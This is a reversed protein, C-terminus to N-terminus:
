KYEWVIVIGVQGGVSVGGSTAVSCTGGSGYGTGIKAGTASPAFNPGSFGLMSDAGVSTNNNTNGLRGTINLDGGSAVGGIAPDANYKGEGGGLGQVTTFTAGTNQAFSSAGGATGSTSTAGGSGAAGVTVTMTDTASVALSKLAYGGASGSSGYYTGDAGSGGGGGGQVIVVIKTVDTPVTYTGSAPIHLRTFGSSPFGTQTAGTIDITGNVDLTAGSAIGFKRM